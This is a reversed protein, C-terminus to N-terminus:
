AFNILKFKFVYEEWLTLDQSLLCTIEELKICDNDETEELLLLSGNELALCCEANPQETPINPFTNINGDSTAPVSEKAPFSICCYNEFWQFIKDLQKETICNVGETEEQAYALSALDTYNCILDLYANALKFMRMEKELIDNGEKTECCISAGKKGICDSIIWRRYQLDAKTYYLM